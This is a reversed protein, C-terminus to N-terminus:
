AGPARLQLVALPQLFVPREVLVRQDSFDLLSRPERTRLDAPGLGPPGLEKVAHARKELLVLEEHQRHRLDRREVDLLRVHGLNLADLHPAVDIPHLRAVVYRHRATRGDRDRGSERRLAQWNADLDHPAVLIFPADQLNSVGELLGGSIVLAPWCYRNSTPCATESA